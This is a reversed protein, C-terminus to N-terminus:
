AKQAIDAARLPPLGMPNHSPAAKEWPLKKPMDPLETWARRPTETARPMRNPLSLPTIKIKPLANQCYKATPFITLRPGKRNAGSTASGAAGHREM